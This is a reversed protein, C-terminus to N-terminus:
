KLLSCGLIVQCKEGGQGDSIKEQGQVHQQRWAPLELLMRDVSLLGVSSSGCLAGHVREAANRYCQYGLEERQKGWTYQMFTM